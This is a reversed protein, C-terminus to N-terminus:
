TEPRCGLKSWSCLVYYTHGALFAHVDYAGSFLSRALLSRPVVSTGFYPCTLCTERPFPLISVWVSVVPVLLWTGSRVTSMTLM